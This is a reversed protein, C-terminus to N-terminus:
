ELVIDRTWLSRKIKRKGIIKKIESPVRRRCGFVSSGKLITPYSDM